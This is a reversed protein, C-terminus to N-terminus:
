NGHSAKLEAIFEELSPSKVRQAFLTKKDIVVPEDTLAYVAKLYQDREVRLSVLQQRLRKCEQRLGACREKWNTGGSKRKGDRPKNTKM